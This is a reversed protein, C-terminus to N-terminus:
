GYVYARNYSGAGGAAGGFLGLDVYNQAYGGCVNGGKGGTGGKGGGM